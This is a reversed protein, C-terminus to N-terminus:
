SANKNNKLYWPCLWFCGPWKRFEQSSLAAMLCKAASCSSQPSSVACWRAWGEAPSLRPVEGTVWAAEKLAPCPKRDLVPPWWSWWKNKTMLILFFWFGLWGLGLGARPGARGGQSARAPGHATQILREPYALIMRTQASPLNFVLWHAGAALLALRVRPHMWCLM